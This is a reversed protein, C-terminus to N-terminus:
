AAISPVCYAGAALERTVFGGSLLLVPHRAEGPRAAALYADGAGRQAAKAVESPSLTTRRSLRAVSVPHVATVESQGSSEHEADGQAQDRQEVDTTSDARPPQERQLGPLSAE